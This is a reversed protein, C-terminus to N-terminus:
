RQIVVKERLLSGDKLGIVVFYLGNAISPLQITTSSLNKVEYVTTGIMDIVKLYAIETLAFNTELQFTGTNPNPFLNFSRKQSTFEANKTELYELENSAASMESDNSFPPQPSSRKPSDDIYIHVNSSDVAHFDSDIIISEVATIDVSVGNIIQVNKVHQVRCGIITTDRTIIKNFLNKCGHIGDLFQADTHLPDLWDKLRVTSDVGNWSVGLIGYYDYKDQVGTDTPCYKAGGFLQGIVRKNSNLLPSGSSGFYTAGDNFHLKWRTNAPFGFGPV